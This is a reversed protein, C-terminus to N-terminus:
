YNSLTVRCVRDGAGPVSCTSVKKIKMYLVQKRDEIDARQKRQEKSLGDRYTHLTDGAWNWSDKVLSSVAPISVTKRLSRPPSPQSLPHEQPHKRGHQCQAITPDGLVSM